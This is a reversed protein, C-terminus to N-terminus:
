VDYNHQCMICTILKNLKNWHKKTAKKHVRETMLSKSQLDYSLNFNYEM